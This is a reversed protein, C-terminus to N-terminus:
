AANRQIVCVPERERDINGPNAHITQITAESVEFGQPLILSYDKFRIDADIVMGIELDKLMIVSPAEKDELKFEALKSVLEQNYLMPKDLMAKVVDPQKAGAALQCDFERVCKLMHGGFKLRQEKNLRQETSPFNFYETQAEIMAAVNELKPIRVILQASLKPVQAIMEQEEISLNDSQYYKELVDNCISVAGLDALMGAIEFEWGQKLGYQEVLYRIYKKSRLGNSFVQPKLQGLLEALLRIVGKVTKDMLEKEIINLRYQKIAATLAEHVEEPSSPKEMFRFIQGHNVAHIASKIDTQGTLLIRVTDPATKKVQSLFEAGNMGPMEMDSIVVPFPGENRLIELGQLGGEAVHVDYSKRFQRKFSNLLNVADDVILLKEKNEAM